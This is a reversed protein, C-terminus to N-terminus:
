HCPELEHEQAKHNLSSGVGPFLLSIMLGVSRLASSEGGPLLSSLGSALALGRNTKRTSVRRQAGASGPSM